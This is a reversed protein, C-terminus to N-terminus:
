YSGNYLNDFLTFRGYCDFGGELICFADVLKKRDQLLGDKFKKHM